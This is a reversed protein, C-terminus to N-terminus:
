ENGEISSNAARQAICANESRNKQINTSQNKMEYEPLINKTPNNDGFYKGCKKKELM